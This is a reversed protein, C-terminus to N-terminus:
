SAWIHSTKFFNRLRFKEHDEAKDIMGEAFLRKLHRETQRNSRGIQHSIEETTMKSGTSLLEIIRERTQQGKRHSKWYETSFEM